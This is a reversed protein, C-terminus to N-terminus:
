EASLISDGVVNGDRQYVYVFPVMVCFVTYGGEFARRLYAPIREVSKEVLYSIVLPMRRAAPLEKYQEAM